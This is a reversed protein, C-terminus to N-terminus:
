RRPTDITEPDLLVTTQVGVAGAASINLSLAAATADDPMEVVAYIDDGGFAYHFSEMHGGMAEIVGRLADRRRSGGENLLGKLGEQTYSAQFLYKPM